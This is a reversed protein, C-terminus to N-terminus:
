NLSGLISNIQQRLLLKVNSIENKIIEQFGVVIVDPDNVKTTLLWPKLDINDFLKIGALSWTAVAITILEVKPQLESIRSIESAIYDSQEQSYGQNLFKGLVIDISLQMPNESFTNLFFRKVAVTKHAIRGDISEKGDRSVRSITSDTGAYQRSLYDGMDTWMSRLNQLVDNSDTSYM